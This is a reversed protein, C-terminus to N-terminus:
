KFKRRGDKRGIDKGISKRNGREWLDSLEKQTCDILKYNKEDTYIVTQEFGKNIFFPNRISM